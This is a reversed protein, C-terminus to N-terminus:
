RIDRLIQTVLIEDRSASLMRFAPRRRAQLVILGNLFEVKSLDYHWLLEVPLRIATPSFDIRNSHALDNM